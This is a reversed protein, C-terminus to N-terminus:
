WALEYGGKKNNPMGKKIADIDTTSMDTLIERIEEELMTKLEQRTNPDTWKIACRTPISLILNKLVIDRDALQKLLAADYEVQNIMIGAREEYEMKALGAFYREKIAKSKILEAHPSQSKDGSGVPIENIKSPMRPDSAAKIAAIADSENVKGNVLKIVGTKVLRNIYPPKVDLRKALEAQTILKNNAM